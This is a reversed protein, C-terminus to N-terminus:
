SGVFILIFICDKAINEFKESILDLNKGVQEM